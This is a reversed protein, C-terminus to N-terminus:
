ANTPENSILAVQPIINLKDPDILSVVPFIVV